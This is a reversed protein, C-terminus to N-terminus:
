LLAGLADELLPTLTTGAVAADPGALGAGAGVAAAMVMRIAMSHRTQM